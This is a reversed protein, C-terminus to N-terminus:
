PQYYVVEGTTPNYYMQVFGSPITTVRRVPKVYFSNTQSAVGNLQAGTANLIITGTSQGSYGALYGMAISYAAQDNVGANQGIAIARTKQNQNGAFTGLAVAGEAQHNRGTQYGIAVSSTTSQTEGADQGIRVSTGNIPNVATNTGWTIEGTSTNYYLLSTGPAGRVPKVYFSSTTAANLPIVGVSNSQANIVISNAAQNTQGAGYGVAVSGVGQNTEGARGGIATARQSQNTSGAYRGLSVSYAAQTSSGASFGIAVSDTGQFSSGSRAGIAVAAQGQSDNGAMSGVSVAAQSQDQYGASNGIATAYEAQNIRGALFGVAVAAQGQSYEGANYGVAVTGTTSQASYGANRGIAVNSPSIIVQSTSVPVVSSTSGARYGILVSSPGLTNNINVINAWATSGGGGGGAPTVWQGDNRLFTVQNGSPPLIAYGNWVFNNNAYINRWPLSVTGLDFTNIASPRFGTTDLIARGIGTTLSSTTWTGTDGKPGPPLVFNLWAAYETGTNTVAAPTGATVTGIHITAATGTNGQPGTINGADAWSSGAWVWLHQTSTVVYGDGISGTYGNPWGPLATNTSVSGLIVVSTGNAGPTGPLGQDGKEGPLGQDGKPGRPGQPGPIPVAVLHSYYQVYINDTGTPPPSTFSITNGSLTWVDGPIQIVGGIAVEVSATSVPTTSLTWSQQSNNGSFVDITSFSPQYTSVIGNEVIEVRTQTTLATVQTATNTVSIPTNDITVTYDPQAAITATFGYVVQTVTFINAM